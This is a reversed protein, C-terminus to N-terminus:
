LRSSIRNMLSNRMADIDTISYYQSDLYWSHVDSFNIIM